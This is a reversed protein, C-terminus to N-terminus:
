APGRCCWAASRSSPSWRPRLQGVTWVEALVPGVVERTGRELQARSEWVEVVQVGDYLEVPAAVDFVVGLTM